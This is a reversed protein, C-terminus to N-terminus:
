LINKIDSLKRIEFTPQIKKDNPVKIPNYWIQDIHSEKAGIIDTKINDGIMICEQPLRNAINLAHTFIAPHPKNKGIHDSLIIKKFFQYINTQKMKKEQIEKFGNSLIYLDYKKYVLYELIQTANEIVNNKSAVQQMFHNNISIAETTSLPMSDKLTLYFRQTKLEEKDITGLEYLRWLNHNIEQYKSIFSDINTIHKDIAFIKYIDALAEISNKNTDILTDDLDFFITNYKM